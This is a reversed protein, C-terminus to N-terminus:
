FHDTQSPWLNRRVWEAAQLPSSCVPWDAAADPRARLRNHLVTRPQAILKRLQALWRRFPLHLAYSLTARPLAEILDVLTRRTWPSDTLIQEIHLRYFGPSFLSISPRLLGSDFADRLLWDASINPFTISRKLPSNEIKYNKVWSGNVLRLRSNKDRTNTAQGPHVGVYFAPVDYYYFRKAALHFRIRYDGAPPIFLPGSEKHYQKVFRVACFTASVHDMPPQTYGHYSGIGCSACSKLMYQRADYSALEGSFSTRGNKPRMKGSSHDYLVFGTGLVNIESHTEFINGIIKLVDPALGNDDELIFLVDGSVEDLISEHMVSVHVNERFRICRLNLDSFRECVISAPEASADDLVFIETQVNRQRQVTELAQALYTPRNYTPVLISFKVGM